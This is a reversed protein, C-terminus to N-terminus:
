FNGDIMAIDNWSEPSINYNSVIAGNLISQEEASVGMLTFLVVMPDILKVLMTRM